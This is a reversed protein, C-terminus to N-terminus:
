PLARREPLAGLRASCALALEQRDASSRCGDGCCGLAGLLGVFAEGSTGQKSCSSLVGLYIEIEVCDVVARSCFQKALKTVGPSAEAAIGPPVADNGSLLSSESVGAPWTNCM